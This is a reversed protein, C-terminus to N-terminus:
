PWIWGKFFLYLGSALLVTTLAGLLVVGDDSYRSSAYTLLGLVLGAGFLLCAVLQWGNGLFAMEM